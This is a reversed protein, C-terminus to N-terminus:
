AAEFGGSEHNAPPAKEKATWTRRPSTLWLFGFRQSEFPRTASQTIRVISSSLSGREVGTWTCM